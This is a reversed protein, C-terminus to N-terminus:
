MNGFLQMIKLGIYALAVTYCWRSKPETIYYKAYPFTIGLEEQKLIIDDGNDDHQVLQNDEQRAQDHELMKAIVQPSKCYNFYSIYDMCYIIDIYM